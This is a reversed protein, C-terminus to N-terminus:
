SPLQVVSARAVVEDSRSSVGVATAHSRARSRTRTRGLSVHELLDLVANPDLDDAEVDKLTSTMEALSQGGAIEHVTVFVRRRQERRLCPTASACWEIAMSPTAFPIHGVTTM